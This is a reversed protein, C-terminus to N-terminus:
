GKRRTMTQRFGTVWSKGGDKSKEMRITMTDATEEVKTFRLVTESGDAEPHPDSVMVDTLLNQRMIWVDGKDGVSYFLIEDTGPTYSMLGYNLSEFEPVTNLTTLIYGNPSLHYEEIGTMVGIVEGNEDYWEWQADWVGDHHKLLVLAKAEM